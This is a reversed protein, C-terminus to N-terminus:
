KNVISEDSEGRTCCGSVTYHDTHCGLWAKEIWMGASLDVCIWSTAHPLTWEAAVSTPVHARNDFIKTCKLVCHLSSPLCILNIVEKGPKPKHPLLEGSQSSMVHSSFVSATCCQCCFFVTSPLQVARCDEVLVAPLTNM